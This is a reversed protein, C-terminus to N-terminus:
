LLAGDAGLRGDGRRGAGAFGLVVRAALVRAVTHSGACLLSGAAFLALSSLMVKKRGYRDGLLGAPLM